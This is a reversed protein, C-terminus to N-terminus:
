FLQLDEVYNVNVQVVYPFPGAGKTTRGSLFVHLIPFM